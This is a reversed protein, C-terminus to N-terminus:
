VVETFSARLWASLKGSCGISGDSLCEFQPGPFDILNDSGVKMEAFIFSQFKCRSIKEVSLRVSESVPKYNAKIM